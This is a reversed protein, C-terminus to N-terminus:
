QQVNDRSIIKGRESKPLYGEAAEAWFLGAKIAYHRAHYSRSLIKPLCRRQVM